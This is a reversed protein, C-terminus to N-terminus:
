KNATSGSFYQLLWAIIEKLFNWLNQGLGRNQKHKRKHKGHFNDSPSPIITVTEQAPITTTQSPTISTVPTVTASPITPTLITATPTLTAIPCSAGLCYLTPTVASTPTIITNSAILLRLPVVRPDSSGSVNELSWVMAGAMSKQKIYDVKTQVRDVTSDYLEPAFGMGFTMKSYPIGANAYADVMTSSSDWYSMVNIYDVYQNVKAIMAPPTLDSDVDMTLLPHPSIKNVETRLQSMLAVLKTEDVSEEWDIDIGDYGYQKMTDVISQVFTSMNNTAGVFLDGTGAGGVSYTITKGAGHAASIAAAPYSSSSMDGIQIGGSATPHMGFHIIHTWPTYDITNPPMSAQVWGPYYVVSIYSSAANIRVQQPQNNVFIIMIVVSFVFIVLLSSKKKSM